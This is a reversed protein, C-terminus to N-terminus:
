TCLPTKKKGGESTSLSNAQEILQSILVIKDLSALRAMGMEITLRPNPATRLHDLMQSVCQSYRIIDGDQLGASLQQLESVRSEKINLFSAPMDKQRAYLVNRLFGGFGRLFESVEIGQNYFSEIVLFCAAKDQGKLGSFLSEYMDESPIGASQRVSEATIRDSSFAYVQDFLSLSDRMSGDARNAIIDLAEEDVQISDAQCIHVLRSKIKAEPIRKFDFRQVRSLITAPVKRVETTAFIFVVHSPPEELTKLLANFAERTLMHVEDIIYIKFNGHMPAYKVQERLERIDDVGRNSAGDIELVDMSSGSDIARCSDCVGCPKAIPGQACNLGKTFIRAASTKGVGRTGTFLYGHSIKGSKIANGLTQAVAEQGVLDDFVKPRWKRALVIYSM